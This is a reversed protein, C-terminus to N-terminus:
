TQLAGDAMHLTAGAIRLGLEIRGMPLGSPSDIGISPDTPEVMQALGDDDRALWYKRLDALNMKATIPRINRRDWFDARNITLCLREDGWVVVGFLGNGLLIGAHTNPLPFRWDLKLKDSHIDM